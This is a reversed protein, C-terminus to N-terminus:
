ASARTDTRELWVHPAFLWQLRDRPEDREHTERWARPDSIADVLEREIAHQELTGRELPWKLRRQRTGDRWRALDADRRVDFQELASEWQSAEVICPALPWALACAKRGLYLVFRPRDLADALRQASARDVCVVGITARFDEHYDRTSLVTRLDSSAFALEDRRTRHPAKKLLPQPPTQVTHFDRLLRGSREIRCAFRVSAALADLGATDERRIGLAAGLLGLLASRTPVPESTRTEAAGARGFSALPAALSFLLWIM